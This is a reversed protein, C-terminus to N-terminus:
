EARGRGRVQGGGHERGAGEEMGARRVRVGRGEGDGRGGGEEDEGRGKESRVGRGERRGGGGVGSEGIDVVSPLAEVAEFVGDEDGRADVLAEGGVDPARLAQDVEGAAGSSM